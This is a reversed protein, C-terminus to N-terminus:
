LWPKIAVAQFGQETSQQHFGWCLTLCELRQKGIPARIVLGIPRM